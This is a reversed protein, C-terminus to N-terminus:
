QGPTYTNALWPFKITSETKLSNLQSELNSKIEEKALWDILNSEKIKELPLNVKGEPFDYNGESEVTNTGDTASVHYKIGKCEAFLELISWKYTIM